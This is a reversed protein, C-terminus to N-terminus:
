AADPRTTRTGAPTLFWPPRERRWRLSFHGRGWAVRLVLVGGSGSRAERRPPRPPRRPRPPRESRVGKLGDLLALAYAPPLSTTFGTTLPDM